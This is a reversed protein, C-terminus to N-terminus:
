RNGAPAPAKPMTIMEFDDSRLPTVALGDRTCLNCVPHDAWADRVAIPAPVKDSWVDLQDNGVIRAQAWQWVPDPGYVVFGTM